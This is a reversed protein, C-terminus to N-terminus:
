HEEIAYEFMGSEEGRSMLEYNYGWYNDLCYLMNDIRESDTWPYNKGVFVVWFVYGLAAMLEEETM